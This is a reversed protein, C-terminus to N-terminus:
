AHQAIGLQLRMEREVKRLEEINERIHENLRNEFAVCAGRIANAVGVPTASGHMIIVIGNVGLLPAGPYENPDVRQKIAKLAKRALIAGMKSMSSSEFQERVMKGLFLGAAESTKLFLNGVLGDCVAVDAEGAYIARPEINGIFHVHPAASLQRHVEKAVQTGKLAEEGINLLGVRPREVGLAHHSYAIGMEAFECLHRATCGVNAGLDLVAVSGTATPLAQCIAARSVGKLPGVITRAAIMVAGTNGASVAANAHGDRVLRLAVSLSSNKKRRVAVVPSDDMTVREAAHVVRVNGHKPHAKIREELTEADGVLIIEAETELSARVAGEVEVEPAGDTGFADVAIRM